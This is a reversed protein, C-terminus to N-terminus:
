TASRISGASSVAAAPSLRRSTAISTSSSSSSGRSGCIRAALNRHDGDVELFRLRDIGYRQVFGTVWPSITAGSRKVGLVGGPGYIMRYAEDFTPRSPDRRIEGVVEAVSPRFTGGHAVCAKLARLVEAANFDDLLVRWAKAAHDDFEGPWAEEILLSLSEWEAPSLM